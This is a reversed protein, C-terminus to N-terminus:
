WPCELMLHYNVINSWTFFIHRHINTRTDLIVKGGYRKLPLVRKIPKSKTRKLAADFSKPSYGHKQLIMKSVEKEHREGELTNTLRITRNAATNIGSLKFPTSSNSRVIDYRSESKRLVSLTLTNKTPM